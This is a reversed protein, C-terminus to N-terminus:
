KSKWGQSSLLALFCMFIAYDQQAHAMLDNGALRLLPAMMCGLTQLFLGKEVEGTAVTNEQIQTQNMATTCPIQSKSIQLMLFTLSCFRQCNRSDQVLCGGDSLANPPRPARAVSVALRFLKDRCLGQM